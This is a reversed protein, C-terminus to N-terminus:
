KKAETSTADKKPEPKKAAEGGCGGFTVVTLVAACLAPIFWSKM